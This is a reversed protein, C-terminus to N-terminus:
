EKRSVITRFAKEILAYETELVLRTSSSLATRYNRRKAALQAQLLQLRQRDLGTAYPLAFDVACIRNRIHWDSSEYLATDVIKRRAAETGHGSQLQQYLAVNETIAFQRRGKENNTDAGQLALAELIIEGSRRADGSRLQSLAYFRLTRSRGLIEESKFEELARELYRNAARKNGLTDHVEGLQHFGEPKWPANESDDSFYVRRRLVPEFDRLWAPRDFNNKFLKLLDRLDVDTDKFLEHAVVPGKKNPVM